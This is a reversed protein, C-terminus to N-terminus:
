IASWGGDSTLSAGNVNGSDDSALWCLAAALQEAEGRRPVTQFYQALVEMGYESGPTAEINTAVAGPLVANCRVGKSAYFVATSKTLGIVAHKSATYATGAASARLSAESAVNVITGGGAEIMGPLVARTTRMPAMVNVAFVKEWRADDVEGVPVFGDMIGANNILVDVRDGAAAVVADVTAQDSIDGSVGVPEERGIERIQALVTEVREPVLDTVVVRAGERALRLATAAGIGAGGGTVVATKGVFRDNSM